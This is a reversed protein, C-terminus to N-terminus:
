TTTEEIELADLLCESECDLCVGDLEVSKVEWAQREVNWTTDAIAIVDEGGCDGCAIRFRETTM